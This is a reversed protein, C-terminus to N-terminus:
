SKKSDDLHLSSGIVRLSSKAAEVFFGAVRMMNVPATVWRIEAIPLDAMLHFDERREGTFCMRKKGANEEM